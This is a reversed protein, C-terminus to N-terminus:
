EVLFNQVLQRSAMAEVGLHFSYHVCQVKVLAEHPHLAWHDLLPLV